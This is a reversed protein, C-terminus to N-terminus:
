YKVGKKAPDWSEPILYGNGTKFGPGGDSLNLEEMLELAVQWLASGPDNRRNVSSQRHALLFKVEGGAKSVESVIWRVTEKLAGILEPTLEMGSEKAPTTPDDWVTRPDGQIGAYLGDCEIGVTRNNFGNGHWVIKNFEHLWNVQGGRTVGVHCGVSRWREPREGLLCATQHLCIGTVEKWSRKGGVDEQTAVKRLDNFKTGPLAKVPAPSTTPTPEHAPVPEPKNQVPESQDPPPVLPANTNAGQHASSRLGSFLRVIFDIFFM